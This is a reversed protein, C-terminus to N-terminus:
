LGDPHRSQPEGTEGAGVVQQGQGAAEQPLTLGLVVEEEADEAAQSRGRRTRGTLRWVQGRHHASVRDHGDGDARGWPVQDQGLDVVLRGQREDGAVHRDVEDFASGIRRDAPDKARLGM